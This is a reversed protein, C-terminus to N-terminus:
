ALLAYYAYTTGLTNMQRDANDTSYLDVSNGSWRLRSRGVNMEYLQM